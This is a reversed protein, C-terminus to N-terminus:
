ADSADPPRQDFYDDFEGRETQQKLEPILYRLAAVLDKPLYGKGWLWASVTNVARYRKGDEEAPKQAFYQLTM